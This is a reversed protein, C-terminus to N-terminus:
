NNNCFLYFESIRSFLWTLRAACDLAPLDAMQINLTNGLAETRIQLRGPLASLEWVSTWNTKLTINAPFKTAEYVKLQNELLNYVSRPIM